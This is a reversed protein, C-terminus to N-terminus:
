TQPSRSRAFMPQVSILNQSVVLRNKLGTTLSSHNIAPVLAPSGIVPIPISLDSAACGIVLSQEDLFVLRVSHLFVCHFQYGRLLILLPTLDPSIKAIASM